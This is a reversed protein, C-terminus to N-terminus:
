QVVFQRAQDRFLEMNERNVFLYLKHRFWLAHELSGQAVATGQSVAVVDLGGAAPLYREPNAEFKQQAAESSFQYSQSQHEATFQPKADVLRLHDRLAVPCFGMFGTLGARAAIQEQRAQLWEPSFQQDLLPAAAWGNLEVAPQAFPSGEEEDEDLLAPASGAPAAEEVVSFPADESEVTQTKTVPQTETAPVSAPQENGVPFEKAPSLTQPAADREEEETWDALAPEEANQEFRADDDVTDAIWTVDAASTEPPAAATRQVDQSFPPQPADALSRDGSSKLQALAQLAKQSSPDRALAQKYLEAAGAEDGSETKVYALSCLIETEDAGHIERFLALSEDYRGQCGVVLALNSKARANDSREELSARLLQEAGAYDQQLYAAYGMDALLEPHRPELQRAHQYALNAQEHEGLLTCANGLRHAYKASKPDLRTLEQYLKKAEAYERQQEHLQARAWTQEHTAASSKHLMALRSKGGACGALAWPIIAIVLLQGTRRLGGM